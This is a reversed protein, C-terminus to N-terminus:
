RRQVSGANELDSVGLVSRWRQDGIWVAAAVGPMGSKPFQDKLVKDLKAKTAKDLSVESPRLAKSSAGIPGWGVAVLSFVLLLPLAVLSPNHQARRSRLRDLRFM